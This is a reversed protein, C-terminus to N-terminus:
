TRGSENEDVPELTDVDVDAGDEPEGVRVADSANAGEIPAGGFVGEAARQLQADFDEDRVIEAEDDLGEYPNEINIKM